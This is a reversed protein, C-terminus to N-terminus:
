DRNKIFHLHINLNTLNEPKEPNVIYQNYLRKLEDMNEPTARPFKKLLAKDNSLHYKKEIFERLEKLNIDSLYRSTEIIKDLFEQPLPRISGLLRIDTILTFFRNSILYDPKVGNNLFFMIVEIANEGRSSPRLTDLAERLIRTWFEPNNSFNIKAPKLIKKLNEIDGKSTMLYIVSNSVDNTILDDPHSRELLEDDFDGKQYLEYLNPLCDQIGLAKKIATSCHDLGLAADKASDGDANRSDPDAGNMIMAEVIKAFKDNYDSTKDRPSYIKIVQHLLTTQDLVSQATSNILLLKELNNFDESHNFISLIPNYSSEHDRWRWEINALNAGSEVLSIVLEKFVDNLSKAEPGFDSISNLHDYIECLFGLLFRGKIQFNPDAGQEILKKVEEALQELDVKTKNKKYLTGVPDDPDLAEEYLASTKQRFSIVALKLQLNPNPKVKAALKKNFNSEPPPEAGAGSTAESDPAYYFPKFLSRVQVRSIIASDRRLTM